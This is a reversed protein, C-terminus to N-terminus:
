QQGLVNFLKTAFVSFKVVVRQSKSSISHLTFSPHSSSLQQFAAAAKTDNTFNM